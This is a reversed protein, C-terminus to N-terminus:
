ELPLGYHKIIPRFVGTEIKPKKPKRQSHVDAAILALVDAAIILFALVRIAWEPLM